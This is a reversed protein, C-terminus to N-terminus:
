DALRRFMWHGVTISVGRGVFEVEITFRYGEALETVRGVLGTFPGETIEVIAGVRPADEPSCGTMDHTMLRHVQGLQRHLRAQDPVALCNAVHKTAAVRARDEPMGFVFVYGTFLPLYSTRVRGGGTLTKAYQPLFYPVSGRQLEDGLAKEARPRTHFVWWERGPEAPDGFLSAPFLCDSPPKLPM